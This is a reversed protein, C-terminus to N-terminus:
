MYEAGCHLIIGLKECEHILLTFALTSSAPSVNPLNLRRLQELNPLILLRVEQLERERCVVQTRVSLSELKGRRAPASRRSAVVDDTRIELSTLGSLLGVFQSWIGCQGPQDIILTALSPFTTDSLYDTLCRLSAPDFPRRLHLTKLSNRSSTCIM